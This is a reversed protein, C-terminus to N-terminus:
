ADDGYSGGSKRQLIRAVRKALEDPNEGPLQHVHIEIRQSVPARQADARGSGPARPGLPVPQLPARRSLQEREPAVDSTGESRDRPRLRPRLPDERPYVPAIVLQQVAPQLQPLDTRVMAERSLAMARQLEQSAQAQATAALSPGALALTSASAVNAALRGMSRLPAESGDDLGSALGTTVHGGMAMMLRSPSKIGFFNKFASIGARAISLLRNALISPNLAALLGQMMMSGLSRLTGILSNLASSVWAAGAAFAAKIRDWNAYIAYALGAMIGIFLGVPGTMVTFAAGLMPAIAVVGSIAAAIGGIGMLVPGAVVALGGLMLINDQVAPSLNGFADMVGVLKDVLPILRPILRDGIAQQLEGFSLALAGAPDADRAAKAAGGVQREVEKMIMAQAGAINGAEVMSKAMAKQEASFSVGARSMANIGKIPDQLAKGLMVSTSAIDGFGKASLDLSAQQARDFMTGTVKGFTLLKATVNKMIDDDDFLSQRMLDASQQKLQELSRAAVPGMSAISAQVQAVAIAGERSQDISTKALALLPLSVAASMIAGKELGFDKVATLRSQVRNRRELASSQREIERNTRHIAETLERQAMSLGAGGGRAMQRNVRALDKEMARVEKQLARISETGGKGAKMINKLGGTLKDIAAFKVVLNLANSM